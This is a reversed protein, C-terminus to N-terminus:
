FIFSTLRIINAHSTDPKAIWAQRWALMDTGRSSDWLAQLASVDGLVAHSLTYRYGNDRISRQYQRYTKRDMKNGRSAGGNAHIVYHM